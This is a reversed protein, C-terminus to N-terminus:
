NGGRASKLAEIAAEKGKVTGIGPIEYNGFGKHYQRVEAEWDVSDGMVDGSPEGVALSEVSLSPAAFGPKLRPWDAVGLEVLAEAQEPTIDTIVEGALYRRGNHRIPSKVEIM